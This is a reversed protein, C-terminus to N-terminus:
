FLQRDIDIVCFYNKGIQEKVVAEIKCKAEDESIKADFPLVTDFILNSHSEGKVMRFDHITANQWLSAVIGSVKEKLLLTIEDDESIPDMHIVANCGLEKSLDREINDIIDHVLLLDSKDSVEAHLSIMVRGPGYDHVVLDHIGLVEKHSLVISHIKDVFEGSPKQGLLPNITEKISLIGARIIFLSVILGCYGDINFNAFNSIFMSILVVLTAICDSISDTSVAKMAASHIKKSYKANYLAMYVKILISIILITITLTSLVPMDEPHVIKSISSKVLEFGMFIILISVLLGSIYEFRGHGFPHDSDPKQSALRFGFLTIVSSGADSLNNIADATIAISGSAFGAIFKIACLVLNLFIGVSGCLIGYKERVDSCEYNQSKIFIKSLFAIM